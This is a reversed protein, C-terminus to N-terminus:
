HDVSLIRFETAAEDVVIVTLVIHLQMLVLNEQAVVVVVQWHQVRDARIDKDQLEPAVQLIQLVVAAAVPALCELKHIDELAVV